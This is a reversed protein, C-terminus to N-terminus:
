GCAPVTDKGEGLRPRHPFCVVFLNEVFLEGLCTTISVHHPGRPRLTPTLSTLLPLPRGTEGGPSVCAARSCLFSTIVKTRLHGGPCMGWCAPRPASPVAPTLFFCKLHHGGLQSGGEPCCPPPGRGMRVPQGPAELGSMKQDPRLRGKPGPPHRCLGSRRPRKMRLQSGTGLKPHPHDPSGWVRTQAGERCGLGAVWRGGREPLMKM